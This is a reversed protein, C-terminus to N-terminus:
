FTTSTTRRHNHRAARAQIIPSVARCEDGCNGSASSCKTQMRLSGPDVCLRACLISLLSQRYRSKRRACLIFSGKTLLFFCGELLVIARKQLFLDFHVNHAVVHLLKRGSYLGCPQQVHSSVGKEVSLTIAVSFSPSLLLPLM